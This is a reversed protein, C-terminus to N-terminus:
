CCTCQAHPRDDCSGSVVCAGFCHDFSIYRIGAPLDAVSGGILPGGICTNCVTGMTISKLSSPLDAFDGTIQQGDVLDGALDLTKLGGPLDRLNGTILENTGIDFSQLGSPLDSLSGTIQSSGFQDDGLSLDLLRSPLDKLSGTIDPGPHYLSKLGSPLDTLTGVIGTCGNLNLTRLSRPLDGLYGHIAATTVDPFGLGLDLTRLGRPLDSVQGSIYQSANLSFVRLGAPLDRFSGTIAVASLSSDGNEGMVLSELDSPLDALNGRTAMGAVFHKPKGTNVSLVESMSASVWQLDKTVSQKGFTIVGNETFQMETVNCYAPIFHPSFEWQPDNLSLRKMFFNSSDLSDSADFYTFCADLKEAQYRDLDDKARTNLVASREHPCSGDHDLDCRKKELALLQMRAEVFQMSVTFAETVDDRKELQNLLYDRFNAPRLTSEWDSLEAPSHINNKELKAGAALLDLVGNYLRRIKAFDDKQEDIELEAFKTDMHASVRKLEQLIEKNDDTDIAAGAGSGVVILAGCCTTTPALAGLSALTATGAVALCADGVGGIGDILAQQTDGDHIDLHGTKSIKVLSAIIAGSGHIAGDVDAEAGEEDSGDSNLAETKSVFHSVAADGRSDTTSPARQQALTAVVVAVTLMIVIAGARLMRHVRSRPQGGSMVADARQLLNAREEDSDQALHMVRM